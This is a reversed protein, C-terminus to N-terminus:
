KQFLLNTEDFLLCLFFLPGFGIIRAIALEYLLLMSRATVAPGRTGIGIFWMARTKEEHLGM